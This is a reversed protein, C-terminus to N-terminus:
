QKTYNPCRLGRTSHLSRYVQTMESVHNEVSYREKAATYANRALHESLEPSDLLEIVADAFAAADDPPVLLGTVGDQLVELHGGDAAAVVPTRVAMAEVLTRGLGENVATAVLVDCAAIWPEIPTRMGMVLLHNELDLEAILELIETRDPERPEGFMAFVIPLKARDLVHRAMEVFVRPRKRDMWNAVWCVAKKQDSLGLMRRCEVTSTQTDDTTSWVSDVPNDIKITRKKMVSPFSSKCHESITLVVAAARTYFATRRSSVPNRQHWVMKRRSIKTACLWTLHMRADNTHVIDIKQSRLFPGLKAAATIMKCLQPLLPEAKALTVAPLEIYSVGARKLHETLTGEVHVGVVAEFEGSPLNRALTLASIHSGGVTDGVFPFLIRTM